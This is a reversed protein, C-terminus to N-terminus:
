LNALSPTASRRPATAPRRVRVPAAQGLRVRRGRRARAAAGGRALARTARAAGRALRADDRRVPDDRHSEGQGARRHGPASGHCPQFLGHRRRRRGVAGHGHRRRAGRMQDSLIDGFMNETVLVDFSGRSASSISRPRTSTTTARPSGPIVPPSARRLDQPLVGDVRVREGQGRLHRAGAPRARQRREALRFAFEHVRESGARTIVMTDRAERDDEVVGRGRSAFLGETSERVLVLDISAPARIPWRCRFAPFRGRRVCAPTSNSGSGCTSSRRSRPATRIASRRGAWRASCSRTPASARGRLTADPLADGTAKYHLAGGPHEAFAFGFGAGHALRELLPLAAATVETGIGDGPLVCIDYTTKAM